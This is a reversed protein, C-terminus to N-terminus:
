RGLRRLIEDLISRSVAQDGFPEVTVRIAVGSAGGGASAPEGRAEIVVRELFGANPPAASLRGSSATHTSGTVSYGRDRLVADGAAMVASVTVSGAVRSDLTRVSYESPTRSEGEAGPTSKCGVLSPAAILWAAAIGWPLGFWLGRHDIPAAPSPHRPATMMLPPPM